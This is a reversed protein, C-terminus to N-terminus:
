FIVEVPFVLNFKVALEHLRLGLDGTKMNMLKKDKRNDFFSRLLYRIQYLMAPMETWLIGSFLFFNFVHCLILDFM